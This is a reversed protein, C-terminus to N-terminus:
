FSFQPPPGGNVLPSLTTEFLTESEWDHDGTRRILRAEMVPPEGVVVFLRGDPQLADIYRQDLAALSGTVVIVDFKGQPLEQTGDMTLLSVDEIGCDALTTGARQVFDTHLDISTVSHALSALCATLFGSGTGIELVNESGALELAQLVRGEITPTMMAQGHGLPIEMDAFALSEYGPPVFREREIAALTELVPADLITWARVQQDIMQRRAYDINM